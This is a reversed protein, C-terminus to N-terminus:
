ERSSKKRKPAAPKINGSTGSILDKIMDTNNLSLNFSLQKPQKKIGDFISDMLPDVFVMLNTPKGLLLKRTCLHEITGLIMSRILIPDTDEKFAGDKIGEEICDLLTQAVKQIKQYSKTNLFNRNTRLQLMILSSYLANHEYITMYGQVIARIKAEAGRIFSLYELHQAPEGTYKEPIAFLMDEKTKFYEYLVPTSVGAEASIDSVNAESFGKEAFVKLAAEIIKDKRAEKISSKAM